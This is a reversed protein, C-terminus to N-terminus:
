KAIGANSLGEGFAQVLDHPQPIEGSKNSQVWIVSGETGPISVPSITIRLNNEIIVRYRCIGEDMYAMAVANLTEGKYKYTFLQM